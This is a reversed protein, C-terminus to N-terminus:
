EEVLPNKPKVPTKRKVKKKIILPEALTAEKPEPPSPKSQSQTDKKVKSKRPPKEPKPLSAKTKAYTTKSKENSM